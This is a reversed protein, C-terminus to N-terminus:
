PVMRGMDPLEDLDMITPMWEVAAQDPQDPTLLTSRPVDDLKLRRRADDDYDRSPHQIRRHAGAHLHALRAHRYRCEGLQMSQESHATKSSAELAIRGDGLLHWILFRGTRARGDAICRWSLMGSSGLSWHNLGESRLIASPLNALM